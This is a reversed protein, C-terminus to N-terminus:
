VTKIEDKNKYWMFKYGIKKRRRRKIKPKTIKEGM